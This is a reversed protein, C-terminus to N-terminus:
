FWYESTLTMWEETTFNKRANIYAQFDFQSLQNTSQSLIWPIIQRDESHEYEVDAIVM